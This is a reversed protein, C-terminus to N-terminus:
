EKDNHKFIKIYKLVMYKLIDAVNKRYRYEFNFQQGDSIFLHCEGLDAM